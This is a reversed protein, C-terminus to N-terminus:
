AAEREEREADSREILAIFADEMTPDDINAM